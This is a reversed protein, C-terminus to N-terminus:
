GPRFSGEDPQERPSHDLLERMVDELSIGGDVLYEEWAEDLERLLRPNHAILWDEVDDGTIPELVAVTLGKRTVLVTKGAMLKRLVIAAKKKSKKLKKASIRYM